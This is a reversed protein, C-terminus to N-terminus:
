NAKGESSQITIVGDKGQSFEYGMADLLEALSWPPICNVTGDENLEVPM